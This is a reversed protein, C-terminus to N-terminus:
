MNSKLGDPINMREHLVSVVGLVGKSLERFFIYHHKSRVFFIGKAEKHEVKQWLNKSDAAKEIAKCLGRVYKDAKKEGWTKETNLWIEKIRIRAVPYIEHHM